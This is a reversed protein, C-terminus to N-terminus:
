LHVWYRSLFGQEDALYFQDQLIGGMSEITKCSPVNATLATIFVRDIGRKKYEGLAFDLLSKAVGQRRFAPATVYGIHGGVLALDGKELEWRCSIRGAVEEGIFACYVTTKSWDEKETVEAEKMKEYFAEFDTVARTQIFPNGAKKEALLAQNFRLFAAEDTRELQRIEM